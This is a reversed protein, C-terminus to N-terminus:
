CHRFGLAKSCGCAGGDRLIDSLGVADGQLMDGAGEGGEGGAAADLAFDQRRTVGSLVVAGVQADAQAHLHGHYLERPM